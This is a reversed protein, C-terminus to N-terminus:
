GNWTTCSADSFLPITLSVTKGAQSEYSCGPVVGTVVPLLTPTWEVQELHGGEQREQLASM